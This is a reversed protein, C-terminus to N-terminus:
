YNILERFLVEPKLGQEGYIIKHLDSLKEWQRDMQSIKKTNTIGIKMM